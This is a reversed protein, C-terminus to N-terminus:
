LNKLYFTPTKKIGVGPPRSKPMWSNHDFKM